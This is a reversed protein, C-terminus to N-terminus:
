RSKTAAEPFSAQAIEPVRDKLSVSEVRSRRTENRGRSRTVDAFSVRVCRATTRISIIKLGPFTISKRRALSYFLFSQQSFNLEPYNTLNSSNPSQFNKNSKKRSFTQDICTTDIFFLIFIIVLYFEPSHTQSLLFFIASIQFIIYYLYINM